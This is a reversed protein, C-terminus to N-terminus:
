LGRAGEPTFLKDDIKAPRYDLYELRTIAGSESSLLDQIEMERVVTKGSAQSFKTFTVQKADRGSALSFLVRAPLKRAEDMWLVVKPYAIKPSQAKLDFVRCTRSNVQETDPRMTAAYDEAFRLRAVDAISAGGLLRQNATIPVPNSAGPVILWMRDGSTLVKRGSNKGGKFLILGRDRGKTYIDFDASGAVQGGVVQSARASIVAEEFVNRAADAAELWPRADSSAVALAAALLLKMTAKLM